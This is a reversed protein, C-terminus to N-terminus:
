NKSVGHRIFIGMLSTVIMQVAADHGIAPVGPIGVGALAAGGAIIGFAATLYTRYGSMFNM